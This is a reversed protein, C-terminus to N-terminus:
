SETKRQVDEVRCSLSGDTLRVTIAEGAAVQEVSRVLSGGPRQTLSYGRALVQLPSLSELKGAASAVRDRRRELMRSGVRALRNALDDLRQQRDRVRDLPLRFVRRERIAKLRQQGDVIRRRMADHLRQQGDRLGALITARDPTLDIIAHTPTLSRKDAVHDSITTDTEHGVASIVPVRSTFIADAVVEENFAWLDEASGGGRGVIMAEIRLTSQLQNVLRIAGAIESAAGDGQVRVPIVTVNTYPWRKALSSLMDQIVSGTPSTVIAISRPFRPLPRKRRADFYGKANLKDRLQQFALELSGIGRPYVEEVYLQLQGQVEYYGIRGGAVVQLGNDLRFRTRFQANRFQVAKLVTQEDKLSFYIHGSSHRVLGTIQGEVFVRPFAGDILEKVQATVASVSLVEHNPPVPM